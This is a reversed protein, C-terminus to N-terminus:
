NSSGLLVSYLNQPEKRHLIREYKTIETLDFYDRLKQTGLTNLRINQGQSSIGITLALVSM